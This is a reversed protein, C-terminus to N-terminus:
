PILITLTARRLWNHTGHILLSFLIAIGSPALCGGLVFLAYVTSKVNLMGLGPIGLLIAIAAVCSATVVAVMAWPKKLMAEGVRPYAHNSEPKFSMTGPNWEFPM